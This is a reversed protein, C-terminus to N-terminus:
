RIRPVDGGPSTWPLRWTVAAKGQGMQLLYLGVNEQVSKLRIEITKTTM